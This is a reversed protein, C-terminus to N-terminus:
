GASRKRRAPAKAPKAAPAKKASRERFEVSRKLADMLNIVPEEKESAPAPAQVQEAARSDVLEKLRAAYTDEYRALSFTDDATSAEILKSALRLEEKTVEPLHLDQPVNEREKIQGHFHLLEMCLAGKPQARIVVLRQKGWLYAQGVGWCGKAGLADRLVAYPKQAISGEPLLYYTRGEFWIPDIQDPGVFTDITIAKESKDKLEEVESKDVVVYEGKQREYGMVIEDPSVEGHIPCVKKYNIRNHCSAHLQHLKVGEDAATVANVAEVQVTVLSLRLYGKWSSRPM